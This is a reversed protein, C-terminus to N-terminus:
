SLSPPPASAAVKALSSMPQSTETLSRALGVRRTAWRVENSSRQVENSGWQDDNSGRQDDNSGRQL